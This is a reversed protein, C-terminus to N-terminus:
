ELIWLIQNLNKSFFCTWIRVQYVIFDLISIALNEAQNCPVRVRKTKEMSSGTPFASPTLRTRISFFHRQRIIFFSNGDHSITVKPLRNAIEQFWNFWSGIYKRIEKKKREKKERKKGWHIHWKRALSYWKEPKLICVIIPLHFLIRSIFCILHCCNILLYLGIRTRM